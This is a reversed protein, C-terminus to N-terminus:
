PARAEARGRIEAALREAYRATRGALARNGAVLRRFVEPGEQAIRQENCAEVARAADSLAFFGLAGASSVCHHAEFRLDDREERTECAEALGADLDEALLDLAGAVSAAGITRVMADYAIRDLLGDDERPDVAGPADVSRSLWRDIVRYLEARDFPKGVHDNMGAERFMRVQDPLVNATMALIPLTAAATGLKRIHRTATMGDMGPMQVDMLVLDYGGEEVARIAAAGDPVVDVTHGGLELVARALEQNIRNDEVLLLHGPRRAVPAAGARSATQDPTGLPLTLAFWFTAGFGAESLVGIEGGMLDILQKCIALGLGTGGFDREISGDVQSFRQFLRGQKERAIGIGTDSVSVRLRQGSETAGGDQVSLTVSGHRTFKVANNLLNLLVQRLRAEDGVLGKPVAPDIVARVDLGKPQASGRVIALCNYVLARPDFAQRDLVVAGAEVKSFDLIDNVVTLLAEGSARVLEGQRQLDPPLRRSGVMLDTFGIIANLPTRIEHSMTALFDSKAASAREAAIKAERLAEAQERSESIDRFTAVITPAEGEADPIRRFIGEVWIWGRRKHRARYACSAEATGHALRNTVAFLNQLDDPHVYASLRMAGLEDPAYGLLRESAPSIYSRRGDDHGLIILESTNEALLRFRHESERLRQEAAIPQSVDRTCAVCGILTGTADRIMRYNVEVWVYSGDRRRYRQRKLARDRQGAFLEGLLVAVVPRDEPHVMDLPRTGILEEPEYGLIDRCAPSVYRRTTELDVQVIMDSTNDALMRFRAESEVAARETRRLDTVDMITGFVGTTTGQADQECLGRSVVDRVSGDPLVVRASFGFSQGLSLAEDVRRAVMPRDDPHYADVAQGITPPGEEPARGFIRLVEDSWTVTSEPISIRWHGIHAIQAALVLLRNAEQVRAEAMRAAVERDALTRNAQALAERQRLGHDLGRVLIVMVALLVATIGAGALIARRREGALPALVADLSKGVNVILPLTGVPRYGYVRRVNDYPSVFEYSGTPSRRAQSFLDGALDLLRTNIAYLDPVQPSRARAFGDEGILAVSGRPGLEIAKFQDSLYDPDVSTVIVGAFRGDRHNLRHATQLVDRGSIRGKLTRGVYLGLDSRAELAKFYDRDRVNVRPADSAVPIRSAVLDGRENFMAIQHAIGQLSTSRKLWDNFDFTDPDQFFDEAIFRMIQDVGVFLREVHKEVGISLNVVDHRAQERLDQDRLNLHYLLGSWIVGVTILGAVLVLAQFRDVSRGIRSPAGGTSPPDFPSAM